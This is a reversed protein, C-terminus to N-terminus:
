GFSTFNVVANAEGTPALSTRDVTRVTFSTMTPTDTWGSADGFFSDANATATKVTAATVNVSIVNLLPSSLTIVYIGPASGPAVTWGKGAQSNAVIAGGSTTKFQGTIMQVNVDQQSINQSLFNNSYEEGGMMYQVTRNIKPTLTM